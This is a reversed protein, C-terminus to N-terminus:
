SSVRINAYQRRNDVRLLKYAQFLFISSIKKILEVKLKNLM